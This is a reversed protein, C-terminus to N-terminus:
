MSKWRKFSKVDAASLDFWEGNKRKDKLRNHWYAEIGDPDDTPIVHVTEAKEPLQLAIEYERRGISNTKGIKYYRGSKILYVYGAQENQDFSDITRKRTQPTYKECIKIVDEFGSNNRCFEDLRMALEAKTGFRDFPSHSPFEADARHKLKLEATTPLKGLEQSLLAYKELLDSDDYAAQFENPVFGADRLADGWRAWFKGIWESKKIGTESAFKQSGLPKGGNKEATRKIEQLIHEKDM